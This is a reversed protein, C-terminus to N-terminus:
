EQANIVELYEESSGVFHLIGSDTPSIINKIVGNVNFEILDGVKPVSKVVIGITGKPVALQMELDVSIVNIDRIARVKTGELM